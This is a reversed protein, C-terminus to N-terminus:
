TTAKRRAAPAPNAGNERLRLSQRERLALERERLDNARRAEALRAEATDTPAAAAREDPPRARARDLITQPDQGSANPYQPREADLVGAAPRLAPLRRRGRRRLAPPTVSKEVHEALAIDFPDSTHGRSDAFTYEVLQEILKVPAQQNGPCGTSRRSM